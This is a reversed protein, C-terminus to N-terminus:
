HRWIKGFTGSTPPLTVGWSLDGPQVPFPPFLRGDWTQLFSWWQGARPGQAHELVNWAKPKGLPFM